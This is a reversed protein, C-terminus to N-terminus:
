EVVTIAGKFVETNGDLDVVEVVYAYVGNVIRDGKFSGDWRLDSDMSNGSYVKNGWRDYISMTVQTNADFGNKSFVTFTDNVGDNNPSFTNPIYIKTEPKEVIVDIMVLQDCGAGNTATLIYQQTTTPTAVPNACDLCSLDTNATWVYQTMMDTSLGALTISDGLDITYSMIYDLFNGNGDNSISTSLMTSCNNSDFVEIDYNNVALNNLISGVIEMGNISITYPALGGNINLVEISGDDTAECSTNMVDLEFTIVDVGNIGFSLSDTCNNTDTVTVEYQGAEISTASPTDGILPDNWNYTYNGQGGNVNIDVTATEDSCNIDDIISFSAILPANLDMIEQTDNYLITGAADVVTITYVDSPLNSVTAPITFDSTTTSGITGTSAGLWSITVPATAMNVTITIIGTTDLGCVNDQVSVFVPDDCPIISLTTVIISDCSNVTSLTDNFVGASLQWANELFISDGNCIQESLPMEYVPNFVLMVNVMSDCGTSSGGIITEVGNDNAENYTTGNIMIEEGSCYIGNVNSEAIPYFMLNITVISDCGQSSANVLTESGMRNNVDYTTGNVVTSFDDCFPGMITSDADSIFELTVTYLTDCGGNTSSNPVLVDDTQNNIDFTTGNFEFSEGMCLMTDLTATAEGGFTLNINVISDCGNISGGIFPEMGIPNAADYVTGNVVINDGTCLTQDLTEEAAPYFDLDIIFQISDCGNEASIVSSGSPNIANYTTGNVMREDDPCLTQEVRMTDIPFFDITVNVISDCSEGALTVAEELNNIDYLIGNIMINDGQCITSDIQTFSAGQTNIVLTDAIDAQELGCNNGDSLASPIIFWYDNIDSIHLTDNLFTGTGGDNCVTLSFMNTSVMNDYLDVIMTDQDYLDLFFFYDPSGTFQIEIDTCQDACLGLDNSITISPREFVTFSIVATEQPCSVGDGITYEITYDGAPMTETNLMNATLGTSAPTITFTGGADENQLINYLDIIMNSQCADGTLPTDGATVSTVVTINIQDQAYSCPNAPDGVEYVFTLTQGAQLSTTRIISGNFDLIGSGTVETFTGGTATEPTLSLLLDYESGECISFDPTFVAVAANGVEVTLVSLESMCAGVAPLSYSFTYTDTPLGNFSVSFPDSIDVAATTGLQTWVGGADPNTLLNNFDLPPDSACINTSNNIGSYNPQNIDVTIQADNDPCSGTGFVTYTFEYTGTLVGFFDTNNPNINVNVGSAIVSTETWTGGADFTGLLGEVDYLMTGDNCLMLTNSNGANPLAIPDVVVDATNTCGGADTVTVVYAGPELNATATMTSAPDNWSYTTGGSATVAINDGICAELTTPAITIAPPPLTGITVNDTSTCGAADTVTVSYLVGPGANIMDTTELTSWLITGTPYVATLTTTTGPCIDSVPDPMIMVTPNNETIIIQDTDTCGSADTVVVTYTAPGNVSITPTSEGNPTWAFTTGTLTNATLTPTEGNCIINDTDSNTINVSVTSAQVNITGDDTCGNADTVTVMYPGDTNVTLTQNNELPVSWDYDNYGAGADLILSGPDCIVPDVALSLPTDIVDDGITVTVCIEYDIVLSGDAIVNQWNPCSGTNMANVIDVGLVEGFPFELVGPTCVFPINSSTANPSNPEALLNATPCTGEMMLPCGLYINYYYAGLVCTGLNTVDVSFINIQVDVNQIKKCPDVPASPLIFNHLYGQSHDFPFIKRDIEITADAPYQCPLVEVQATASNLVVFLIFITFVSNKLYSYM